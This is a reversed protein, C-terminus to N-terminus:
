EQTNSTKVSYLNNKKVYINKNLEENTEKRKKQKEGGTSHPEPTFKSM